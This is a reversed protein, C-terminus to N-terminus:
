QPAILKPCCAYMFCRSCDPNRARCILKGLDWTPIDFIGPYEPNLERATYIIEEDRAEPRVLGLRKFVRRIHIDVSIDISYRDSVSIKFDRVLINAGMSAIKPGVGAFELFRRVITASSPNGEWIKSADGMYVRDIREIAQQFYEPMNQARHHILNRLDSLPVTKLLNFDFGGAFVCVKYPILWAVEATIQRDMICGLVYGHPYKEIDNLFRNAAEDRTFPVPVTSSKWLENAQSILKGAIQQRRDESSRGSEM